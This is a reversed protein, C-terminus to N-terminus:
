YAVYKYRPMKEAPVYADEDSDADGKESPSGSCITRLWAGPDKKFLDLEGTMLEPSKSRLEAKRRRADEDEQHRKENIEADKKRALAFVDDLTRLKKKNMLGLLRKRVNEEPMYHGWGDKWNIMDLLWKKGFYIGGLNSEIFPGLNNSLPLDIKPPFDTPSELFVQVLASFGGVSNADRERLFTFLGNRDIEFTTDSAMPLPILGESILFEVTINRRQGRELEDVLASVQPDLCENGTSAPCADEAGAAVEEQVSEIEESYVASSKDPVDHMRTVPQQTGDAKPISEATSAPPQVERNDGFSDQVVEPKKATQGKKTQGQSEFAAKPVPLNLRYFCQKM